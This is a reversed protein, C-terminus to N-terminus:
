EVAAGEGLAREAVNRVLENEDQLAKDLVERTEESLLGLKGLLRASHYRIEKDEDRLTVRLKGEIQSVDLGSRDLMMLAELREARSGKEFAEHLYEQYDGAPYRVNRLVELMEKYRGKDAYRRFLKRFDERELPAKHILDRREWVVYDVMADVLDERRLKLETVLELAAEKELYFDRPAPLVRSAFLLRKSYNTRYWGDFASPKAELVSKLYGIANTGFERFAVKAEGAEERVRKRFEADSAASGQSTAQPQQAPVAVVVVSTGTRLLVTGANSMIMTTVVRANAGPLVPITQGAGGFVMLGAAPAKGLVFAKFWGNINKGKYRPQKAEYYMWPALGLLTLLFLVVALKRWGSMKRRFRMMGTM